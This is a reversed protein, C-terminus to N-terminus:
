KHVKNDNGPLPLNVESLHRPAEFPEGSQAIVVKASRVPGPGLKSELLRCLHGTNRTGYLYLFQSLTSLEAGAIM